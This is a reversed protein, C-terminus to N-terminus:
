HFLIFLQLFFGLGTPLMSAHTFPEKLCLRIHYWMLNFLYLSLDFLHFCGCQITMSVAFLHLPLATLYNFFGFSPSFDRRIKDVRKIDDEVLHFSSHGTFISYFISTCKRGWFSCFFIMRLFIYLLNTWNGWCRRWDDKFLRFFCFIVRIQFLWM